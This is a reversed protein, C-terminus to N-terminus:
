ETSVVRDAGDRVRAIRGSCGGRLVIFVTIAISVLITGFLDAALGALLAVIRIRKM